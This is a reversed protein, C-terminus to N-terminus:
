EQRRPRIAAVPRSFTPLNGVGAHPPCGPPHFLPTEEKRFACAPFFLQSKRTEHPYIANRNAEAGTSDLRTAGGGSRQPGEPSEGSAGARPPNHGSLGTRGTPVSGPHGIRRQIFPQQPDLMRPLHGVHPQSEFGTSHLDVDLMYALLQDARRAAGGTRPIVPPQPAPAMEVRHLVPRQNTGLNRPHLTDLMPNLLHRHRPRFRPRTERRQELRHHDVPQLRRAERGHGPLTPQAPVLHRPNLLTRNHAPQGPAPRRHRRPHAHVLGRKLAPVLIHRHDVVQRARLRAHQM